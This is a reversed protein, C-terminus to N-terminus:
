VTIPTMDILCQTCIIGLLLITYLFTSNEASAACCGSINAFTFCLAGSVKRSVASARLAVGDTTGYCLVMDTMKSNTYNEIINIVCQSM